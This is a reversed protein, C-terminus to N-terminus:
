RQLERGLIAEEIEGEAARELARRLADDASADVAIRVRRRAEDRQRAGLAVAAAVRREAPAAPDEIVGGLEGASIARRRYDAGESLIRSLEQRWRGLERGNRDLRELGAGALAGDGQANMAEHIRDLLVRRAAEDEHGDAPSLAGGVLTRLVVPAGHKQELRVGDTDPVVRMLAQYPIFRSGLTKRYLIGDTGVAAERRGMARLVAHGAFGIAAVILGCLFLAGVDGGTVGAEFMRRLGTALVMLAFLLAPFLLAVLLGCFLRGGPVASAASALPVRLVRAAAGVGAARLLRDGEAADSARLVIVEGSCTGLHVRDPEEWWGQTVEGLPIRRTPAGEARVVLAGDEVAVSGAVMAPRDRMGATALSILSFVMGLQPVLSVLCPAPTDAVIAGMALAGVLAASLALVRLARRRLAETRDVGVAPSAAAGVVETV